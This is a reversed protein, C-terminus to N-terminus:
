SLPRPRIATGFAQLSPTSLVSTIAPDLNEPITYKKLLKKGEPPIHYVNHNRVKEEESERGL